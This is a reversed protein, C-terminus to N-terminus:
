LEAIRHSQCMKCCAQAPTAKQGFPMRRQLHLSATCALCLRCTHSQMFKSLTVGGMHMEYSGYCRMCKWANYSQCMDERPKANPLIQKMPPSQLRPLSVPVRNFYIALYRTQFPMNGHMCSKSWARQNHRKNKFGRSHVVSQQLPCTLPCMECASKNLTGITDYASAEIAAQWCDLLACIVM